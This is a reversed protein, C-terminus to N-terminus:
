RVPRAQGPDPLAQPVILGARHQEILARKLIKGSATLPFAELCVFWEPMDYKSLGQEALHGLVEEVAITGLVALCVREGLRADPIPFAAAKAVGPHRLALAEIHAPHINHGGRIILDKLRGEIKLNGQPDVSGLDGSLFWGERNFSAQTAAQNGLYGLMLTAGRGAIQGTEGQPLDRDPDLADVIKVEYGPGGRGCTNVWTHLDDQPHTFQHSSNETMGYVNQPRIGQQTFAQAVVQPIPAGAMYFVDVKGMRPLQRARQDALIDMAHTPVGMVYTAETELVWDLPKSGAPPTGLIFRCGSLLWQGAAVWGIHHSLPSLSLLATTTNVAWAAVLDRGNALLTNCSHMVCKPTGTTGSTFALYAVEDPDDAPPRSPTEGPAPFGEPTLVARFWDTARLRDFLEAHRDDAGWGPQTILVATELRQLLGFIEECTYTKHLSPNCALGLRSCALFGIVAEVRDPLWLAVRDGAVLGFAEFRAALAEVRGLLEAWTLQVRADVLAVAQPRLAAHGALLSFFTDDRWLGQGYYLRALRPSHLTLLKAM